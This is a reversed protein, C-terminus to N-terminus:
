FKVIEGLKRLITLGNNVPITSYEWKSKDLKQIAAFPGGNGFEGSKDNYIHYNPQTNPCMCDHILIVTSPNIHKELYIIENYLHDGDHWDDILILDYLIGNEINKVFDIADSIIYSWNENKIENRLNFNESIDVSTLKGNTYSLAHLLPITTDGNRVGLELVNKSKTSIVLSFLTILHQSSDKSGNLSESIIKDIM